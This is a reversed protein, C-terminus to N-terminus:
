ELQLPITPLLDGVPVNWGMMPLFTRAIEYVSNYLWRTVKLGVHWSAISIRMIPILSTSVTIHMPRCNCTRDSVFVM